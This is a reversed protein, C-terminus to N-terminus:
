DLEERIMLGYRLVDLIEKFFKGNEECGFQDILDKGVAHYVFFVAEPNLNPNVVGGHVAETLFRQFDRARTSRGKALESHLVDARSDWFNNTVQHLLPYEQAFLYSQRYYEELTSFFDTELAFAKNVFQRKKGYALDVIYLYLDLKDDFYQYMSGKAIGCASVIKSLSAQEYPNRAFEEIAAQEIACRKEPSLNFFTSKPV